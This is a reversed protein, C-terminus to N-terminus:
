QAQMQALIENRQAQLGIMHSRLERQESRLDDLKSADGGETTFFGLGFVGETQPALKDIAQENAAIAKNARLIQEDVLRRRTPLDPEPIDDDDDDSESFMAGLPDPGRSLKEFYGQVKARSAPASDAIEMDVVGCRTEFEPETIPLDPFARFLEEYMVACMEHIEQAKQDLKKWEDFAEGDADDDLSLNALRELQIAVIDLDHGFQDSTAAVDNILRENDIWQQLNHEDWMTAASKQAMDARLCLLKYTASAKSRIFAIPNKLHSAINAKLSMVDSVLEDVKHRLEGPSPDAM